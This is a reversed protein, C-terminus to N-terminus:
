PCLQKRAPHARKQPELRVFASVAAASPVTSVLNIGTIFVHRPGTKKEERFWNGPPEAAHTM